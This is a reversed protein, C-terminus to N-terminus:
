FVFSGGNANAQERSIAYVRDNQRNMGGNVTFIKEDSFMIPMTGFIKTKEKRWWTAFKYRKHKHLETLCPQNIRFYAKFVFIILDLICSNLM